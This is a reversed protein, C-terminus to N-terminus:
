FMVKVSVTIGFMVPAEVVIKKEVGYISVVGEILQFLAEARESSIDTFKM